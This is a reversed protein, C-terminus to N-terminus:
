KLRSSCIAAAQVRCANWKDLSFIQEFLRLWTQKRAVSKQTKISIVAVVLAGLAISATVLPALKAMEELSM